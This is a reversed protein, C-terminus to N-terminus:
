MPCLQLPLWPLYLLLPHPHLPHITELQLRQTLLLILLVRLRHPSSTQSSVLVSQLAPPTPTTTSPSFALQQLLKVLLLMVRRAGPCSVTRRRLDAQRVTRKMMRGVLFIYTRIRHVGDLCWELRPGRQRRCRPLVIGVSARLM